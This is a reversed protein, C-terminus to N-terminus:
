GQSYPRRPSKGFGVPALRACRGVLQRDAGGEGRAPVAGGPRPRPRESARPSARRRAGRRSRVRARGRRRGQGPGPRPGRGPPGPQLGPVYVRVDSFDWGGSRAANRPPDLMLEYWLAPPIERRGGDLDRGTAVRAGDILKWRFDAEIERKIRGVEDEAARVAAGLEERRGPDDTHPLADWVAKHRALARRLEDLLAPRAWEVIAEPLPLGGDEEATM